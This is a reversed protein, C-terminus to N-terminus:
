TQQSHRKPLGEPHGRRNEIEAMRTKTEIIAEVTEQTANPGFRRHRISANILVGAREVATEDDDGLRVFHAALEDRQGFDAPYDSWQACEQIDELHRELHALRNRHMELEEDAAATVEAPDPLFSWPMAASRVIRDFLRATDLRRKIEEAKVALEYTEPDKRVIVPGPRPDCFTMVVQKGDISVCWGPRSRAQEEVRRMSVRGCEIIPDAVGILQSLKGCVKRYMSEQVLLEGDYVGAFYLDFAAWFDAPLGTAKQQFESLDPVPEQPRTIIQSPLKM